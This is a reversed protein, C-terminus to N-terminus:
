FVRYIVVGREKRDVSLARPMVELAGESERSASSMDVKDKGGGAGTGADTQVHSHRAM